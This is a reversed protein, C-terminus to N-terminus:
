DARDEDKKNEGDKPKKKGDHPTPPTKLMRKLADNFRKDGQTETPDKKPLAIVSNSLRTSTLANSAARMLAM